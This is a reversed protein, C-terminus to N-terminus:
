MVVRANEVIMKCVPKRPKEFQIKVGHARTYRNGVFVPAYRRGVYALRVYDKAHMRRRGDDSRATRHYPLVPHELPPELQRAPEALRTVVVDNRHTGCGLQRDHRTTKAIEVPQGDLDGSGDDLLGRADNSPFATKEVKALSGIRRHDQDVGPVNRHRPRIGILGAITTDHDVVQEVSVTRPDEFIVSCRTAERPFAWHFVLNKSFLVVVPADVAHGLQSIGGEVTVVCASRELLAATVNIPLGYLNRFYRSDIQPDRESGIVVIDFQGRSRIHWALRLWGELLWDKVALEDNFDLIKSISHMAFVIYPRPCLHKALMRDHETLQVVPRVSKIPIDLFQSFGCSIHDDFIDPHSRCVEHINFRYLWPPEDINVPLRRFWDEDFVSEGHWYIEDNYTVLDIDPNDELLRCYGANHVVYTIFTDPNMQRFARIVPTTCLFGGLLNIGLFFAQKSGDCRESRSNSGDSTDHSRNPELL